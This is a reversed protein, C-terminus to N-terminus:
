RPRRPQLRELWWEDVDSRTVGYAQAMEAAFRAGQDGVTLPSTTGSTENLEAVMQAGRKWADLNKPLPVKALDRASLKFANTALAVGFQQAASRASIVPATLAAAVLALDAPDNPEVSIVPTAPIHDGAADLWAEVVRTQTAVLIKPRRRARAWDALSSDAAAVAECDVVPRVWHQGAFRFSATGWKLVLADIMGVTVLPQWRGSWDSSEEPHERVHDVFGYFQRRFGATVSAIDALTRQSSLTVTPVGVMPAAVPGWSNADIESASAPPVYPEFESGWWRRVEPRPQSMTAPRDIVLGCVQVAADFVQADTAWVGSLQGSSALHSRISVAHKAALVSTPQVMALSGGPNLAGLGAALFLWADDTYAGVLSGWQDRLQERRLASHSSASRLQTLFPPNGLVVDASPLPDLLGDGVSLGEIKRPEADHDILFIALAAESVAVAQPDIDVGALNDVAMSPRVGAAVMQEAAALLFVAGGVAPDLVQVPAGDLVWPRDICKVLHRAVAIPTLHAGARRRDDPRMLLEHIQGLLAPGAGDPLVHADLPEPVHEDILSLGVARLTTGRQNAMAEAVASVGAAPSLRRLSSTLARLTSNSALDTPPPIGAMCIPSVTM